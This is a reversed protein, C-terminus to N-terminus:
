FSKIVKSMEEDLEIIIQRAIMRQLYSMEDILVGIIPLLQNITEELNKIKRTQTFKEMTKFCDLRDELKILLIWPNRLSFTEIQKYYKRKEFPSTKKGVKKITLADVVDFVLYGFENIIEIPSTDTDELVDHLLAAEQVWEPAGREKMKKSVRIPHTIYPEGTMRKQGEHAQTAKKIAEKIM